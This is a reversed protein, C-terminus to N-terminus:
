AVPHPALNLEDLEAPRPRLGLRHPMTRLRPHGLRFQDAGFHIPQFGAIIGRAVRVGLPAIDDTTVDVYLVDPSVAALSGVSDRICM